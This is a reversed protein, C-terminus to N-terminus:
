DSKKFALVLLMVFIMFVFFLLINVKQEHMRRHHSCHYCQCQQCPTARVVVREFSDNEETIQIRRIEPMTEIQQAVVLPNPPSPPSPPSPPEDDPINGFAVRFSTPRFRSM